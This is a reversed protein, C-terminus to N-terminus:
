QKQKCSARGQQLLKYLSNIQQVAGDKEAQAWARLAEECRGLQNYVRGLQYNPLYPVFQMGTLRINERADDGKQRAAAEFFQAAQSLQGRDSAELGRRYLVRFDGTPMAEDPGPKPREEVAAEGGAKPATAADLRRQLEALENKLRAIEAQATQLSNAVGNYSDRLRDRETVVNETEGRATRLQTELSAARAREDQLEKSAPPSQEPTSRQVQQMQRNLRALEQKRTESEALLKEVDTSSLGKSAALQKTLQDIRTQQENAVAATQETIAAIAAEARLAVARSEEAQRRARDAENRSSVAIIAGAMAAVALVFAGLALIKFRRTAVRQEAVRRAEADARAEQADAIARVRQLEAERAENARKLVIANRADLFPKALADHFIEYREPPDTVRLLRADVLERLFWRVEDAPTETLAVLDHEKQSIKSGTPTVLHAFLDFVIDSVHPTVRALRDLHEDFHQKAIAKAGGLSDLTKRHIVLTGHEAVRERWLREMVLQLYATEVEDAAAAQTIRGEGASAATNVLDARVQELIAAVLPPEILVRPQDVDLRENYVHLPGEIAERASAISLRKLRLANGLLNPIRKRFRDLKALGDERLGILFRAGIDRRNIAAALEADIGASSGEPHYLLYEEFQDLLIHLQGRFQEIAGEIWEDLPLAPDIALPSGRVLAIADNCAAKLRDVYDDHQWERFYLVATKPERRLQPIVGAQLVSSKGVASPGYFVTLPAAFLNAAVVRTESRRGFFFPQEAVTFPRLGVYPCFEGPRLTVGSHEM